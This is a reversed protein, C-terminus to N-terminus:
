AGFLDRWEEELGADDRTMQALESRIEGRVEQRATFLHDRVQSEKLGLRGAVDAYSPKEGSALDVAEFVRFVAERGQRALRDRVRDVAVKMVSVTWARDFLKEPDAARPDALVSELPAADGELRLFGAGGGRKLARLAEDEHGLFRRLLVKLFTRFSGREPAYSRLPEQEALWLFFAQTLDKADENSKNWAIRVFTYVPRWYRGALEALCDRYGETELGAFRAVFGGTTAPFAKPGGAM